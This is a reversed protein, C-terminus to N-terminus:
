NLLIFEGAKVSRTQGNPLKATINAGNVAATQTYDWKSGSEPKILLFQNVTPIENAAAVPLPMVRGANVASPKSNDDWAVYINSGSIL